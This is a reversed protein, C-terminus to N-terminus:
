EKRKLVVTKEPASVVSLEMKGDIFQLRSQAKTGTEDTGEATITDGSISLIVYKEERKQGAVTTTISSDTITFIMNEAQSMFASKVTAAYEPPLARLEPVDKLKLWTANADVTWTGVMDKGSVAAMALTSTCLSILVLLTLRALMTPEETLSYALSYALSHAFACTHLRVIERKSYMKSGSWAIFALLTGQESAILHRVRASSSTANQQRAFARTEVVPHTAHSLSAQLTEWNMM